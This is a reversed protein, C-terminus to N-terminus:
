CPGEYYDLGNAGSLTFEALTAPPVGQPFDTRRLTLLDFLYSVTSTSKDCELGGNCGGDICSNPGSNDSFDCNRRGKLGLLDSASGHCGFVM